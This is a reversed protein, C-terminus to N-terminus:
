LGCVRWWLPAAGPQGPPLMVEAELRTFAPLAICPVEYRLIDSKQGFNPAAEYAEGNEMPPDLAAVDTDRWLRHEWGATFPLSKDVM